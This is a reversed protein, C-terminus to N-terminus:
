DEQECYERWAEHRDRFHIDQAMGADFGAMFCERGTRCNFRCKGNRLEENETELTTIRDHQLALEITLKQILDETM